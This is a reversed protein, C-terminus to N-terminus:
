KLLRQAVTEYFDTDAFRIFGIEKQAPRIYLEDNAYIQYEGNGDLSVHLQKERRPLRIMISADKPLVLPTSHMMHPCIPVIEPTEASSDLISGGCSMAYGTSGTPTSVILGDAPYEAFFRGNIYLLLRTMKGIANHGVVIDNLVAPLEEKGGDARHIHASLFLRKETVYEGRLLQPLRGALEEPAMCNLFGLNGLHIGCLLVPYEAMTRAAQLYSGDGGVSFVFRAHRGIWDVSRFYDASFGMDKMSEATNEPFYIHLGAAELKQVLLSLYSRIEEKGANALIAIDM